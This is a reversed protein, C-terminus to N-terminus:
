VIEFYSGDSLPAAYIIITKGTSEGSCNSGTETIALSGLSATKTKGKYYVDIFAEDGTGTGDLRDWHANVEFNLSSSWVGDQRAADVDTIIHQRNSDVDYSGSECWCGGFFFGFANAITEDSICITGSMSGQSSTEPYFRVDLGFLGNCCECSVKGNRTAIRKIGEVEAYKITEM